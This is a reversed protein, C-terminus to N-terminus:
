VNFRFTIIDGDQVVYDKGELRLLGKERAKKFTGCTLFDQWSLVEARIFGKQLDSHVTGAAEPATSGRPVTWARVEKEGTTLFTILGLLEFTEAIVRDLAPRKLGLDELFAAREEPDELEALERELKASLAIHAQRFGPAPPSAGRDNEAVNWVYLIPKASLFCFGRLERADALAPDIRLPQGSELHAAAKELLEEERPDVLERDKRKDLRLRELRKEAVALDAIALDEEIARHQDRPDSLGSFSDLVAVLCDYPRIESLVRQGLGSGKGGGPLDLYEIEAATVKRPSFLEALPKLRPEPIKVMARSGHKGQEGALAHFLETKGSAAFGFLATKM